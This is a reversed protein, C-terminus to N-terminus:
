YNMKWGEDMIRGGCYYGSTDNPYCHQPNGSADKWYDAAGFDSAGEPYLIPGKGNVIYFDFLDRGFYNPGKNPGNVDIYLEGCVQTLNNPLGFLDPCDYNGFVGQNSVMFSMGDASIFSYWDGSLNSDNGTTAGIGDYNSSLTDAICGGPTTGCIKTTKFYKVLEDGLTQSDTGSSFMETCKLDGVCGKDAAIQILVQNWQAYAKKLGTIYQTKQYNNVLTPITLAAVVGIIGLTILVEALTFAYRKQLRSSQAKLENTRFLNLLSMKERGRKEILVEALTFGYKKM